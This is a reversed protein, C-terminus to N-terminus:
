CLKMVIFYPANNFLSKRQFLPHLGVKKWGMEMLTGHQLAVQASGSSAVDSNHDYIPFICRQLAVQASGSSAVAFRGTINM